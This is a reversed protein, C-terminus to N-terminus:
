DDHRLERSEPSVWVRYAKIHQPSKLLVVVLEQEPDYERLMQELKEIKATALDAQSFYDVPNGRGAIPTSATNMVIAGRGHNKFGSTAMPWFLSFNEQIWALDAGREGILQSLTAPPKPSSM